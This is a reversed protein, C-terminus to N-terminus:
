PQGGKALRCVYLMLVGSASFTEVSVVTYTETGTLVQDGALPVFPTLGQAPVYIVAGARAAVDGPKLERGRSEPFVPSASVAFTTLNPTVTRTAQSFTGTDRVFSVTIGGNQQVVDLVELALSPADLSM